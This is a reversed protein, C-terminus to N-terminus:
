QKSNKEPLNNIETENSYKGCTNKKEQKEILFM